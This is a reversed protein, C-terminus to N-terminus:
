GLRPPSSRRVARRARLVAGLQPHPGTRRMRGRALRPRLVLILPVGDDRETLVYFTEGDRTTMGEADCPLLYSRRYRGDLGYLDILVTPAPSSYGTRTARVSRPRWEPVRAGRQPTPEGFGVLEAMAKASRWAGVVTAVLAVAALSRVVPDSPM